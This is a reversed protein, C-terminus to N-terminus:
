FTKTVNSYMYRRTLGVYQSLWFILPHADVM